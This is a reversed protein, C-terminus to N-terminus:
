QDAILLPSDSSPQIIEAIKQKLRENPLDIQAINRGHRHIQMWNKIPYEFKILYQSGEMTLVNEHDIYKSPFNLNKALDIEVLGCKIVLSRFYRNDVILEHIKVKSDKIVQNNDSDYLFNGNSKLDLTVTLVNLGLDPVFDVTGIDANGTYIIKNNIQISIKDPASFFDHKIQIQNKM